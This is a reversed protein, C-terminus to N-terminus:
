VKCEKLALPFGRCLKSAESHPGIAIATVRDGVDPERYTSVQLGMDNARAVLDMLEDEDHAALLAIYSSVEYWVKDIESHEAVFQRLAHCSQVAQYGPSMDRRTIIYLKDGEVITTV